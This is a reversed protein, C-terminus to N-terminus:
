KRKLTRLFRHKTYTAVGKSSKTRYHGFAMHAMQTELEFKLLMYFSFLGLLVAYKNEVVCNETM